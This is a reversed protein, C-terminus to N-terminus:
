VQSVAGAYGHTHFVRRARLGHLISPVITGLANGAAVGPLGFESGMVWSAAVACVANIVALDVFQVKGTALAPTAQAITHVSILVFLLQAGLVLSGPYSGPGFWFTILPPATIMLVVSSLLAVGLSAILGTRYIARAGEVNGEAWKRAVFPYCVSQILTALSIVLFGLKVLIGFYPVVGAGFLREVIVVDLNLVLFGSINMVLFQASERAYNGLNRRGPMSTNHVPEAPGVAASSRTATLRLLALRALVAYLVGLSAYIIGFVEIPYGYVAALAYGTYCLLSNIVALAKDVGVYGLGGLFTLWQWSYMRLVLGAAFTWWLIGWSHLGTRHAVSAIYLGAGLLAVVLVGVAAAYARRVLSFEHQLEAESKSLAWALSRIAIPGLGAQGVQILVLFNTILFWLGVEAAPYKHVLLPTLAIQCLGETLLYAVGLAIGVSVRRIM